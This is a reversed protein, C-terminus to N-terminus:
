AIRVKTKSRQQQQLKFCAVSVESTKAVICDNSPTAARIPHSIVSEIM